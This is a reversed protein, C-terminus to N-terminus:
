EISQLQFGSVSFQPSCVSFQCSGAPRLMRSGSALLEAKASNM